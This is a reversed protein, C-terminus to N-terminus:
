TRGEKRAARWARAADEAQEISQVTVNLVERDMRFREVAAALDDGAKILAIMLTAIQEDTLHEPTMLEGKTAVILWM